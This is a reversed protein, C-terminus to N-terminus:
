FDAFYRCDDAVVAAVVNILHHAFFDDREIRFELGLDIVLEPALPKLFQRIFVRARELSNEILRIESRWRGSPWWNRM